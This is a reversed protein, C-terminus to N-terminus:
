KYAIPKENFGSYLKRYMSVKVPLVTNRLFFETYEIGEYEVIIKNNIYAGKQKRYITKGRVIQTRKVAMHNKM